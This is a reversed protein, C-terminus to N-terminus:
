REISREGRERWRSDVFGSFNEYRFDFFRIGREPLLGSSRIRSGQSRIAISFITFDVM